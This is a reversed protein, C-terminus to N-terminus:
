YLNNEDIDSNTSVVAIAKSADLPSGGGIGVIFDVDNENALRGAELCSTVTPNQCIKDYIFYEIGVKDLVYIVDELAGCKKASSKGTVILCKNGLLSFKDMNNKICDKGTIIEASMYFNMNM